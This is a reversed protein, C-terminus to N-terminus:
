DGIKFRTVQFGIDIVAGAGDSGPVVNERMNKFSMGFGKRSFNSNNGKSKSPTTVKPILVDHYNLAIFEFKVLIDYIAPIPLAQHFQLEDFGNKAGKITWAKTARPVAM